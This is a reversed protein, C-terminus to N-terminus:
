TAGEVAVRRAPALAVPEGRRPPDVSGGDLSAIYAAIDSVEDERLAVPPMEFHGNESIDLLEDALFKASYVRSLVRFQPAHREPSHAELAVAHCRACRTEAIEAGRAVAPDDRTAAAAFASVGGVVGGVAILAALGVRARRSPVARM